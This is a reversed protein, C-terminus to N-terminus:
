APALRLVLQQADVRQGIAVLITDVRGASEAVVPVLMKMSEINLLEQEASVTDGVVVMVEVVIGTVPSRVELAAQRSTM